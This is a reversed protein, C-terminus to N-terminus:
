FKLLNIHKIEHFINESISRMATVAIDLNTYKGCYKDPYVHTVYEVKISEKPHCDTLGLDTYKREIWGLCMGDIWIYFINANISHAKVKYNM